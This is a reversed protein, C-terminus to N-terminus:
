EFTTSLKLYAQHGATDHVNDVWMVWRLRRKTLYWSAGESGSIARWKAQIWPECADLISICGVMLCWFQLDAVPGTTPEIIELVRRLEKTVYTYPLRTGPLRFATSLFSLMGILVMRAICDSVHASLSVLREQISRMSTRFECGEIRITQQIHENISEVLYQLDNYVAATRPGVLDDIHLARTSKDNYCPDWSICRPMHRLTGTNLYWFLEIQDIKFLTKANFTSPGGHLQMLQELAALHTNAAARDGFVGAVIALAMVIYVSSENLQDAHGQLGENLLVITQHLHLRTTPAPQRHQILDSVASAMLLVCHLYPRDYHLWRFHQTEDKNFAIHPDIPYMDSTM